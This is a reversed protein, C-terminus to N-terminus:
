RAARRRKAVAAEHAGFWGRGIRQWADCTSPPRDVLPSLERAPIGGHDMLLAAAVCVTLDISHVGGDDGVTAIRGARGAVELIRRLTLPGLHRPHGQPYAAAYRAVVEAVEPGPPPPQAARRSRRRPRNTTTSM